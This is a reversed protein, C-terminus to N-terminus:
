WWNPEKLSPCLGKNSLTELLSNDDILIIREHGITCALWQKTKPRYLVLSDCNETIAKKESQIKSFLEKTAKARKTKNARFDDDYTTVPEGELLNKPALNINCFNQIKSEPLLWMIIELEERESLFNLISIQKEFSDLEIYIM